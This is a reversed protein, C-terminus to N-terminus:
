QVRSLIFHVVEMYYSIGYDSDDASPHVTAQLETFQEVTLPNDITPISVQDVVDDHTPLPADWDIGFLESEGQILVTHM